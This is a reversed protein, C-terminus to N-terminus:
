EYGAMDKEFNMVVSVEYGTSKQEIIDIDQGEVWIYVRVKNIGSRIPCSCCTIWSM